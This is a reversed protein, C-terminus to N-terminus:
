AADDTVAFGRRVLELIERLENHEARTEHIPRMVMLDVVRGVVTHLDTRTHQRVKDRRRKLVVRRLSLSLLCVAVGCLVVVLPFASNSWQLGGVTITGLWSSLGPVSPLSAASPVVSICAWVVAVAAVVMGFAALIRLVFWTLPRKAQGGILALNQALAGAIEEAPPVAIDMAEHWLVPLGISGRRVAEARANEVATVQVATEALPEGAVDGDLTAAVADARADAGVAQEIGEVFESRDHTTLEPEIDGFGELLTTATTKLAAEARQAAKTKRAVATILRRRVADLGQGTMASVAEVGVGVLGDARLLRQVDARVRGVSDEPITDVQNLLTFMSSEHGTLRRIYRTHLANDAYKQPDVVWIILDVMPLIRDVEERHADIISDHDPLDLLVLGHLMTEDDADLASEREHRREPAVGLWDLLGQAGDLDGWVCATAHSTTPREIGADAFQVGSIANFLSSKGSGTGGVFAVVTRDVGGALREAVTNLDQAADDALGSSLRNGAQNLVMSLRASQERLRDTEAQADWMM